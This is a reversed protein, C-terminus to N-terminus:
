YRSRVNLGDSKCCRPNWTRSAAGPDSYPANQVDSLAQEGQCQDLPDNDPVPENAGTYADGVFDYGGLVKKGAGIAGGLM